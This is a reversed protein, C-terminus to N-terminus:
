GAWASVVAPGVAILVLVVLIAAVTWPGPFKGGNYDDSHRDYGNMRSGNCVCSSCATVCTVSYTAKCALQSARGKLARGQAAEM